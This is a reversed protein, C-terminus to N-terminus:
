QWFPSSFLIKDFDDANEWKWKCNDNHWRKIISASKSSFGCVGCYIIDRNNWSKSMRQKTSKSLPKGKHKTNNNNPNDLCNDNHWRIINSHSGNLGCYVCKSIPQTMGKLGKSINESHKKSKKKGLSSKSMKSKTVDSAFYIGTIGKNWPDCGTTDFGTSTAKSKNYFMKNVAVDYRNHLEMEHKSAEKRTDFIGIIDYLYDDPNVEQDELFLDDTSSSFYHFGLDDEPEVECSRVGLYEMM